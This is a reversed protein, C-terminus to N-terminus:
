RELSKLARHGHKTTKKNLMLNNKQIINKTMTKKTPVAFQLSKKIDTTLEELRKRSRLFSFRYTDQAEKVKYETAINRKM